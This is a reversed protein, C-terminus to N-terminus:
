VRRRTKLKEIELMISEALTDADRLDRQSQQIQRVLAERAKAHKRLQAQLRVLHEKPSPPLNSM